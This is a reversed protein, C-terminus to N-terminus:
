LIINEYFERSLTLEYRRNGNEDELIWYYDLFANNDEVGILKYEKYVPTGNLEYLVNRKDVWKKGIYKRFNELIHGWNGEDSKHAEAEEVMYFRWVDGERGFIGKQRIHEM